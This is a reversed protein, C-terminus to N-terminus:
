FKGAGFKTNKSLFKGVPPRNPSKPATAMDGQWWVINGAM